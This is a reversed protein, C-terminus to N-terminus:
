YRNSGSLDDAILKAPSIDNRRWMADAGALESVMKERVSINKLKNFECVIKEPNADRGLLEPYVTKKLLINVLSVWKIKLMFRALFETLPNMKYVIVAPVHMIALEASVTGSAAIAIDTKAFLDYRASAPVIEPKICWDATQERIYKETTEVVPIYFNWWIDPNQCCIQEAAARMIPLLKKVESMRSGPILAINQQTKVHKQLPAVWGCSLDRPARSNRGQARIRAGALGDAIPHGVAITKLGYKAFYPVEFDFFCYLRDFIKAFKKARWAGWAWVQPAVVHYFRIARPTFHSALKVKEVVRKAFSPSDITLVIDPQFKIIADATEDIRRTLTRVHALVEFLGMVALDSIPFISKLGADRMHAGGIGAFQVGDKAADMIKAGLVDGSVEGAIIFIKLNKKM